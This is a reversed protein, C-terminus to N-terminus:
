LSGLIRWNEFSDDAKCGSCQPSERIEGKKYDHAVKEESNIIM